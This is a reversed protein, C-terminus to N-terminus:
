YLDMTKGSVGKNYHYIALWILRFNKLGYNIGFRFGYFSKLVWKQYLRLKMAKLTLTDSIMLLNRLSYYERILNNKKQYLPREFNLRKAAQRAELFLSCDVMLAYGARSVKLCFDLEEFGFFLKPNPAIKKKAVESSVLMCMGGAVYDVEVIEKKELLRTQVRKIVGKKRDFFQGVCGLVGAFPNKTSIALLREFCDNRFPPDNDDGWYIWDVSEKACLELGKAAAGAPGANHGMRHYRIRPDLLSAVAHDTELGESNDIIWIFEPKLTQNFVSSITDILIVPRDHTIIFGGLKVM